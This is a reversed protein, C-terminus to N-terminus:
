ISSSPASAPRTTRRSIRPRDKPMLRDCHRVVNKMEAPLHFADAIADVLMSIRDRHAPDDAIELYVGACAKEFLAERLTARKDMLDLHAVLKPTDWPDAYIDAKKLDEALPTDTLDIEHWEELRGLERPLAVM